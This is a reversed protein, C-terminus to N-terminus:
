RIAVTGDASVLNDALNKANNYIATTPQETKSIRDLIEPAPDRVYKAIDGARAVLIIMAKSDERQKLTFIKKVAPANTADCGIGWITDTPYLILKGENLLGACIAAEEEISISM